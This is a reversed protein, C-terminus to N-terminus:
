KIKGANKAALAILGAGFLTLSPEFIVPLDLSRMASRAFGGTAVIQCDCDLAARLHTVLEKVLGRFGVCAGILMAEETSRGIKVTTSKSPDLKPLQATREALYDFMMPYGPAIVGGRWTGDTTIVAATIATGFDLVILPAGFRSIAGAADCLRDAGITEPQPYDIRLRRMEREIPLGCTALNRRSFLPEDDTADKPSNAVRPPAKPYHPVEITLGGPASDFMATGVMWLELGRSKAFKKWKRDEKPVVSVYAIAQEMSQKLSRNNSVMLLEEVAAAAEEFGCDCHKAFKVEGKNWLGVATSTNGVDVTILSM